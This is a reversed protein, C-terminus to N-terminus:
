IFFTLKDLLWSERREGAGSAPEGRKSRAIDPEFLQEGLLAAPRPDVEDAMDTGM